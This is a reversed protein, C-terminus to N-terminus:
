LKSRPQVLSSCKEQKRLEHWNPNFALFQWNIIFSWENLVKLPERNWLKKNAMLQVSVWWKSFFHQKLGMKKTLKNGAAVRIRVTRENISKFGMSPLTFLGAKIKLWETILFPVLIWITYILRSKILILTILFHSKRLIIM